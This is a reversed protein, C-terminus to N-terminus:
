NYLQYIVGDILDDYTRIGLGKYENEIEKWEDTDFMWRRGIVLWRNPYLIKLGHEELVHQRNRPDEFYKTYVRTQSIYSSLEASFTERNERGVVPAGKLTPLKFEVIDSFGNPATIFFDPRIAKKGEEAWDCTKENHIDKALFAMKLIFQNEPLNLFQTIDTERTNISSLIEVFRNLQVLREFQFGEPNPYESHADLIAQKELSPWCSFKFQDTEEDFDIIELPFVDLWKINRVLLGHSDTGYFFCNVFRYYQEKMLDIGSVNFGMMMSQQAAFNWGNNLLIEHADNSPLYLDQYVEGVLPFRFDNQGIEFGIIDDMFNDSTTYDKIEVPLKFSGDLEEKTSPGVYEIAWHDKGFYFILKEPNLLFAPITSKLKPDSEVIKWMEGWYNTMLIQGYNTVFDKLSGKNNSKDKSM